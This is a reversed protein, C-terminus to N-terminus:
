DPIELVALQPVIKKRAAILKKATSGDIEYFRRAYQVAEIGNGKKEIRWLNWEAFSPEAGEESFVLFDAIYSGAQEDEMVQGQANPGSAKANKVLQFAYARPDAIGDFGRVSILTSWKEFTEGKTLYERIGAEDGRLFYDQKDFQFMSEETPRGGSDGQSYQRSALTKGAPPAPNAPLPQSPVSQSQAIDLAAFVPAMALIQACVTLRITLLLLLPKM